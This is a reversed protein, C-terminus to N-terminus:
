KEIGAWRQLKEKSSESLANKDSNNLVEETLGEDGTVVTVKPDTETSINSEALVPTNVRDKESEEVQTGVTKHLVRGIYNNYTEELKDTAVGNLIAQMVERPKDTLSELVRTMEKERKLTKLENQAETLSAVTSSLETKTSELKIEAGKEDHFNNKYEKVFSEFIKKGFAMKRADAIEEKLEEIEAEMRAEVFTDLTEILEKMDNKVVNAMEERAEVLKQAHEVELDRFRQIDEKLETLEATLVEQSKTDLAEILADKDAVFQEALQAKVEVTAAEVAETLAAEVLAKLETKSEENLLESEFIKNFLEKM